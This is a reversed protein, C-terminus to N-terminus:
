DELNRLFELYVQLPYNFNGTFVWCVPCIILLLILFVPISIIGVILRILIKM